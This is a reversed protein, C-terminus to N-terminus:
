EEPSRARPRLVLTIGERLSPPLRRYVANKLAGAFPSPWEHGTEHRAYRADFYYRRFLGEVGFGADQAITRLETATYERFHGPNGTDERPVDFPNRGALLKLRKPLSAANPTQLLLWGGPEIRERLFRLVPVPATPLHELVEALIILGYLPMGRGTEGRGASNLDLRYHAAGPFPPMTEELGATDVPNPFADRLLSTLPSPGIDLIRAEAPLGLVRVCGIVFAFRPAHYAEYGSGRPSGTL